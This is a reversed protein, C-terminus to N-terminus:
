SRKKKRKEIMRRDYWDKTENGGSLIIGNVRCSEACSLVVQSRKDDNSRTSDICFYFTVCTFHANSRQVNKATM